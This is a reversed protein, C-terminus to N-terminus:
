SGPVARRSLLSWMTELVPTRTRRSIMVATIAPPRLAPIVPTASAEVLPEAVDVVVDVCRAAVVESDDVGDADDDGDVPDPELEVLVCGQGCALPDLLEYAPGGV